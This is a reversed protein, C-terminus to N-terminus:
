DSFAFAGTGIDLFIGDRDQIFYPYISLPGPPGFTDSTSDGPPHLIMSIERNLWKFNGQRLQIQNSM